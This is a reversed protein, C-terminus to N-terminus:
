RKTQRWCGPDGATSLELAYLFPFPNLDVCDVEWETSSVYKYIGYHLHHTTLLANGSKGVIGLMDGAKVTDGNRYYRPCHLQFPKTEPEHGDCGPCVDDIRDEDCPNTVRNGASDEFCVRDMHAYYFIYTPDPDPPPEPPYTYVYASNGGILEEDEASWDCVFRVEGDQAAVVPTTIRPSLEAYIDMGGGHCETNALLMARTGCALECPNPRCTDDHGTNHPGVVPFHTMTPWGDGEYFRATMTTPGALSGFALNEYPDSGPSYLFYGDWQYFGAGPEGEAWLIIEEGVAYMSEGTCFETIRSELPNSGAVGAWSPEVLVTLPHCGPDDGGIIVDDIAGEFGAWINGEDGMGIRIRELGTRPVTADLQAVDVRRYDWFLGVVGTEWDYTAAVSKWQNVYTAPDGPLEYWLIENNGDELYLLLMLTYRGPLYWNNISLQWLHEEEFHNDMQSAIVYSAKDLVAELRIKAEFYIGRDFSLQEGREVELWAWSEENWSEPVPRPRNLHLAREQYGGEEGEVTEPQWDEDAEWEDEQDNWKRAKMRAMMWDSAAIAQNFIKRQRLHRGNFDYEIVKRLGVPMPSFDGWIRVDDIQGEFRSWEPGGDGVHITIPGTVIEMGSVPDSDVLVGDVFLELGAAPDYVGTLTIWNGLWSADPFLYEVTYYVGDATDDDLYVTFFARGFAGADPHVALTWQDPAYWKAVIGGGDVALSTVRVKAEVLVGKRFSIGRSEPLEVYDDFGDFELAQGSYGPVTAPSDEIKGDLWGTPDLINALQDGVIDGSDFAYEVLFVTGPPPEPGVSAQVGTALSGWVVFCVLGVAFRRSVGKWGGSWFTPM